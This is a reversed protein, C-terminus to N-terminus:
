SDRARWATERYHLQVGAVTARFERHGRRISCLQPVLSVSLFLDRAATSMEARVLRLRCEGRTWWLVRRLTM